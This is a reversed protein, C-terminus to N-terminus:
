EPAILITLQGSYTGAAARQIDAETIGIILTASTTPGRNCHQHEAATYFVPSATGAALQAGSSATPTGAWQVQIPLGEGAGTLALEAGGTSVTVRYTQTQSNVYVCMSTTTRVDGAAPLNGLAIDQLGSIRAKVAQANAPGSLAAGVVFAVACLLRRYSLPLFM